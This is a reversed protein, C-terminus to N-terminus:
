LKFGPINLIGVGIIQMLLVAFIVFLLGIIASTLRERGANLHEPNGGSTLMQFAGLLMLLFAFGGAIAIIFTLFDKIFEAPQTHVCGIATKIAPGRGADCPEQGGGITCEQGNTCVKPIANSVQDQTITFTLARSLTKGAVSTNVNLTYTGKKLDTVQLNMTVNGSNDTTANPATKRQFDIWVPNNPVPKGSPDKLSVSITFPLDGTGSTPFISADFVYSGDPVIPTVTFESIISGGDPKWDCGTHINGVNFKCTEKLEQVWIKYNGALLSGISAASTPQNTLFLLFANPDSYKTETPPVGDVFGSRGCYNLSITSANSHTYNGNNDQIYLVVCDDPILNTLNVKINDQINPTPPDIAITPPGAALTSQPIILFLSFLIISFLAFYLIKSM